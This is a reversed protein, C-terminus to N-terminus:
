SNKMQPLNKKSIKPSAVAENAENHSCAQKTVKLGKTFNALLDLKYIYTVNVTDWHQGSVKYENLASLEESGGVTLKAYSEDEVSVKNETKQQECLDTKRMDQQILNMLERSNSMWKRLHFNGEALGEKSKKYLSFDETSLDDVYISNYLNEVFKPDELQYRSIHYQLTCSLLFLSSNVGVTVCAYRLVVINLDDKDIEDVWLFRLCNRDSSDISIQLFAMEVDTIIAFIAPTLPPDIQLIDNLSVSNRNAQNTAYFVIRIKNSLADQYCSPTSHLPNEWRQFKILIM